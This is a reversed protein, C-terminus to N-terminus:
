HQTRLLFSFAINADPSTLDEHHLGSKTDEQTLLPGVKFSSSAMEDFCSQVNSIPSPEVSTAEPDIYIAFVADFGGAGPVGAILVEPIDQLSDLLKSQIPPEIPVDAEISIQRLCARSSQFSEFLESLVTLTSNKFSSAKPVKNVKNSIWDNLGNNYSTPDSFFMQYLLSFCKTVQKNSESLTHWLPKAIDPNNERWRLVKSVMSPTNSGADVEGLVMHFRHPLLVPAIKHDWPDDKMRKLFKSPKFTSNEQDAFLESLLSPSFRQYIHSGFIAASVDFGSGVKGQAQCHAYQAIRHVEESTGSVGVQNHFHNIVAGILSSVLCASSGLGTKHAEELHGGIWGCKPLQSLGDFSLELGCQSLQKRQSYFDNDAFLYITIPMKLKELAQKNNAFTLYLYRYAAELACLVFKNTTNSTATLCEKLEFGDKDGYMYLWPPNEFQASKVAINYVNSRSEPVGMFGSNSTDQQSSPTVWSYFRADTSFVLGEYDKELVLYGGVVLVKGPCSVLTTDKVRKSFANPLIPM